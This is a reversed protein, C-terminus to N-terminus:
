GRERMERWHPRPVPDISAVHRMLDPFFSAFEAQVGAYESRLLPIATDLRVPHRLRRSMNRLVIEIGGLERYSTLWDGERMRELVWQLVGPLLDRRQELAAHAKQVFRELPMSAYTEFTAALFHDYVVDAIVAAYHDFQPVFRRRTARHMPHDDTFVDTLRHLRIGPRLIESQKALSGRVFDGALSGAFSDPDDRALFLHALHNVITQARRDL